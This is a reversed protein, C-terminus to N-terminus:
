SACNICNAVYPIARLRAEEINEGCIECRGFSGDQIRQLARDIQAVEELGEAELAMVLSDNETQKVQENFNSSVPEEKQYIHKHTRNLRSMLGTKLENLENEFQKIDM